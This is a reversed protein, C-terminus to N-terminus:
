ALGSANSVEGMELAFATLAFFASDAAVGGKRLFLVPSKRSEAEREWGHVQWTSLMDKNSGEAEEDVM